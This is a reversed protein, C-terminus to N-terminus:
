KGYFLSRLYSVHDSKRITGMRRGVVSKGSTLIEKTNLRFGLNHATLVDLRIEATSQELFRKFDDIITKRDKTPEDSESESLEEIDEAEELEETSYVLESDELEDDAYDAIPKETNYSEPM